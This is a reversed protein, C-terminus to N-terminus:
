FGSRQIVAGVNVLGERLTEDRISERTTDAYWREGIPKYNPKWAQAAYEKRAQLDQRSAQVDSMYYVHKPGLWVDEGEVAGIYLMTFVVKAAMERVFYVRRPMGPPFIRNLRDRVKEVPLLNIEPM